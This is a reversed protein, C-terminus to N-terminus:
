DEELLRCHFEYDEQGAFQEPDYWHPGSAAGLERRAAEIEARDTLPYADAERRVPAPDAGPGPFRNQSM